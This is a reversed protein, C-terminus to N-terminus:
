LTAKSKYMDCSNAPTCCSAKWETAPYGADNLADIIDAITLDSSVRISREALDAEVKADSQLNVIAKTVRSVCHGCTMGAIRFKMM